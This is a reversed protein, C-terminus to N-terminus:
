DLKVCRCQAGNSTKQATLCKMAGVRDYTGTASDAFNDTYTAIKAASKAFGQATHMGFQVCFSM